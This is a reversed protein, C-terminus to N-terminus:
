SPTLRALAAALQRDDHGLIDAANRCGFCLAMMTVALTHTLLQCAATLQDMRMSFECPTLQLPAPDQPSPSANNPVVPRINAGPSSYMHGLKTCILRSRKGMNRAIVELV